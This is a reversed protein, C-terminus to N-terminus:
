LANRLIPYREVVANDDVRTEVSARPLRLRPATVPAQMPLLAPERVPVDARATHATPSRIDPFATQAQTLASRPQVRAAIDLSSNTKAPELGALDRWFAVVATAERVTEIFARESYYRRWRGSDFLETLYQLRREALACWRAVVDRHRAADPIHTMLYGTLLSVSASAVRV